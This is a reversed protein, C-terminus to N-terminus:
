KSRRVDDCGLDFSLATHVANGYPDFIAAQEDLISDPLVFVDEAPLVFYKALCGLCNVGLGKAHSYLHKKGQRCNPCQGCVMDGERCVRDGVKLYKVQKGLEAIEEMFEHGIVLPPPITKQAWADWKYIHVGTGCISNKWTKILVEHDEISLANAGRGDM